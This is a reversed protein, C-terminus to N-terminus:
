GSSEDKLPLERFVAAVADEFVSVDKTRAIRKHLEDANEFRRILYHWLERTRRMGNLRGYALSYAEYIESHFQRLEERTAPTGGKLRRFLAPDEAAGRAAAAAELDPWRDRIAAFDTPTRLDGNFCLPFPSNERALAFAEYHVGGGYMERRTRCHITLEAIPYSRLLALLPPFEEAEAYGIRTKVSVPLPPRSFIGDLLAKLTDPTRLLGSGKGKATVTASPCGLNLNVEGYGMDALGDAAWLFDQPNKTLIQPVVHIGENNEPGIERLERATFLHDATPSFFPTYYRDPGGFLRHHIRRYISTTVGEMPAFYLKM